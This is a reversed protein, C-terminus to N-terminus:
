LQWSHLVRGPQGGLISNKFRKGSILPSRVECLEASQQSAGAEERPRSSGQMAVERGVSAGAANHDQPVDDGTDYLRGLKFQAEANGSTVAAGLGGQDAVDEFGTWESDVVTFRQHNETRDEQKATALTQVPESGSLRAQGAPSLQIDQSLESKSAVPITMSGWIGIGAFFAGVILWWYEM